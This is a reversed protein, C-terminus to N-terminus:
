FCKSANPVPRLSHTLSHIALWNLPSGGIYIVQWEEIILVHEMQRKNNCGMGVVYLTEAEYRRKFLGTMCTSLNYGIGLTLEAHKTSGWLFLLLFASWRLSLPTPPPGDDHQTFSGSM